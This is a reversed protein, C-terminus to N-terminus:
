LAAPNTKFTHLLLNLAEVWDEVEREVALELDLSSREGQVTFCNEATPSPGFLRPKHGVGQGKKVGVVTRLDMAGLKAKTGPNQWVISRFDPSILVHCSNRGGGQWVNMLKGAALMTRVDKLPDVTTIDQPVKKRKGAEKAAKATIKASKNLNELAQMSLLASKGARQIELDDGYSDLITQILEQGGEDQVLTATERSSMALSDLTKIARLILNRSAPHDICSNMLVSIGNMQTIARLNQENFALFGLLQLAGTLFEADGRFRDIAAM